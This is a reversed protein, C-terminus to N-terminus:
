THRAPGPRHRYEKIVRGDSEHVIVENPTAADALLKAERVAEDRSAFDGWARSQGDATVHWRANDLFVHYTTKDAATAGRDHWGYTWEGPLAWVANLRAPGPKTEEFACPVCGATQAIAELPHHNTVAPAPHM